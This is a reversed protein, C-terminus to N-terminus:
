PAPPPTPAAGAPTPPAPAPAPASEVPPAFPPPVELPATAPGSVPPLGNLARAEAEADYATQVWRDLFGGLSGAVFLVVASAALLGRRNRIFGVLLLLAGLVAVAVAIWFM